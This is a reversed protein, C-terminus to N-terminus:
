IIVLIVILSHIFLHRFCIEKKVIYAFLIIYSIYDTTCTSKTKTLNEIDRISRFSTLLHFYELLEITKPILPSKLLDLKLSKSTQLFSPFIKNGIPYPDTPHLDPLIAFRHVLM